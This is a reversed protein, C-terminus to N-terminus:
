FSRTQLSRSITKIGNLTLIPSLSFLLSLPLPPSVYLSLCSCLCLCLSRFLLVSFCLYLYSSAILSLSFLSSSLPSSVCTSSLHADNIVLPTSLYSRSLDPYAKTLRREFRSRKIEPTYFTSAKNKKEKAFILRQTPPSM